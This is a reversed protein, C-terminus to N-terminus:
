ELSEVLCLGVGNFHVGSRAAYEVFARLNLSDLPLLGGDNYYVRNGNADRLPQGNADRLDTLDQLVLDEETVVGDEDAVAAFADFRLKEGGAALTDWFLHVAHAYIFAGITKNSQIAIGKTGDIGNICDHYHAAVSLGLSFRISTGDRTAVGEILYSLGDRVMRDWDDPDVNRNEADMTAELFSFEIDLRKAPLGSIEGLDADAGGGARLDLGVPELFEGAIRGSAPDRLVVDGIVVVYKTFEMSWGDVFALEVNGENHPFGVQLARGGGVVLALDGKGATDESICGVPLLFLSLLFARLFLKM